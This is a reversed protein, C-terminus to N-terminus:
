DYWIKLPVILDKLSPDLGNSSHLNILQDGISFGDFRIKSIDFSLDVGGIKGNIIDSLNPLKGSDLKNKFNTLLNSNKSNNENSSINGGNQKLYNAEKQGRLGFGKLRGVEDALKGVNKEKVSQIIEPKINWTHIVRSLLVTKVEKSLSQYEIQNRKLITKLRDGYTKMM